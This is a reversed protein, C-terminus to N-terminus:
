TRRWSAAGWIHRAERQGRRIHRWRPYLPQQLLIAIAAATRLMCPRPVVSRRRCGAAITVSYTGRRAASTSTTCAAGRRANRSACVVLLLLLRLMGQLWCSAADM